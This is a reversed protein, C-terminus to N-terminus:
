KRYLESGKKTIAQIDSNDTVGLQHLVDEDLIALDIENYFGHKQFSPWYKSLGCEQLFIQIKNIAEKCGSM